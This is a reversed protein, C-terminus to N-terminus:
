RIAVVFFPRRGLINGFCISFRRESLLIFHYNSLPSLTISFHLSNKCRACFKYTWERKCSTHIHCQAIRYAAAQCQPDVYLLQRQLQTTQVRWCFCPTESVALIYGSQKWLVEAIIVNRDFWNSSLQSHCTHFIRYTSGLSSFFALCDSRKEIEFIIIHVPVFSACGSFACADTYLPLQRWM